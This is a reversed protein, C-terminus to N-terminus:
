CITHSTVCTKDFGTGEKVDGLAAVVVLLDKEGRGVARDVELEGMGMEGVAGEGQQGIAEHGIVDVPEDAGGSGVGHGDEKAADM